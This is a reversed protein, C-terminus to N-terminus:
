VDDAEDNVCDIKKSVVIDWWVAYAMQIRKWLPVKNLYCVITKKDESM